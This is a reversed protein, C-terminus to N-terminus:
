LKKLVKPDLRLRAAVVLITALVGTGAAYFIAARYPGISVADAAGTAEILLGALPAGLLYGPTWFFVMLAISAAASHPAVVAVATPLGVFFSGNACGNVLAFVFLPPLSTSVPWIALMSASNVLCTIMMTNFAGIQDCAWGGLIRGVATAAGFGGVLGAGTSASLGM